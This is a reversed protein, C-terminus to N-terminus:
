KKIIAIASFKEILEAFRKEKYEEMLVPLETSVLFYEPNNNRIEVEVSIKILSKKEGNFIPVSINFGVISPDKLVFSDSNGARGQQDSWAKQERSIKTTYNRLATVVRGHEEISEFINSKFRVVALLAAPNSYSETSNIKLEKFISNVVFAGNVQIEGPHAANVVLNITNQCYDFEVYSADFSYNLGDSSLKEGESLESHRKSFFEYPADITGSIFQKQPNVPSPLTGEYIKVVGEKAEIKIEKEM